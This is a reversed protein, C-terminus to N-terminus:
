LCNVAYISILACNFNNCIKKIKKQPITKNRKPNNAFHMIPNGGNIGYIPMKNLVNLALLIILWKPMEAAKREDDNNLKEKM